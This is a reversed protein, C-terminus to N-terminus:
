IGKAQGGHPTSHKKELFHEPSSTPLVSFLPIASNEGKESVLCPIKWTSRRVVDFQLIERQKLSSKYQIQSEAKSVFFKTKM